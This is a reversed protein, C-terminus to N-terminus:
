VAQRVIRKRDQTVGETLGTFIPVTGVADIVAFLLIFAEFFLAFDFAFFSSILSM